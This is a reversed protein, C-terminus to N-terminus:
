INLTNLVDGYCQRYRWWNLVNDAESLTRPFVSVNSYVTIHPLLAGNVQWTASKVDPLGLCERLVLDFNLIVLDHLTKAAFADYSTYLYARQSLNSLSKGRRAVRKDFWFV